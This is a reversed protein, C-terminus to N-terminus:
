HQKISAERVVGAWKQKESAIYKAFQAPTTPTANLGQEKYVKMVAPSKLAGVSTKHIKDLIIQPTGTPAFVRTRRRV